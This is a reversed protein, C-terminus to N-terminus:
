KLSRRRNWIHTGVQLETLLAKKLLFGEFLDTVRSEDQIVPMYINYFEDRTPLLNLNLANVNKVLKLMDVEFKYFSSTTMNLLANGSPVSRKDFFMSDGFDYLPAFRLIKREQSSYLIGINNMHRDCNSLVFDSLIMYDFFADIYDSTFGYYLLQTRLPNYETQNDLRKCANLLDRAFLMSVDLNCINECVSYYENNGKEIFYAVYDIMAVKGQKKHLLSAFLENALRQNCNNASKMLYIRGKNKCWYKALNGNLTTDPSIDKISKFEYNEKFAINTLFDNTYLNVISWNLREFIGKKYPKLWYCDTLSVGLNFLVAETINECVMNHLIHGIDKRTTPINRNFWWNNFTEVNFYYLGNILKYSGFPLLTYCDALVEVSKTKGKEFFVKAVPTDHFYLIYLM